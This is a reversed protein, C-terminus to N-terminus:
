NNLTVSINEHIKKVSSYKAGCLSTSLTYNGKQVLMSARGKKPVSLTYQKKGSVKVVIACDSKNEIALLAENSDESGNLIHNLERETKSTSPNVNKSNSASKSATEGKAMDSQSYFLNALKKRLEPTKAHDPNNKIFNAIVKTDTSKEAQELTIKTQSFAFSSFGLLFLFLLKKM